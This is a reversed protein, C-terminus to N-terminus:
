KRFFTVVFLAAKKIGRGIRQGVLCGVTSQLINSKKSWSPRDLKAQGDRNPWPIWAGRQSRNARLITSLLITYLDGGREIRLLGLLDPTAWSTPFVRMEGSHADEPWSRRYLGHGVVGMTEIMM